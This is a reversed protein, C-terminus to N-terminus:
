EKLPIYNILKNVLYPISQTNSLVKCLLPEIKKSNVEISKLERAILQEHLESSPQARLAAIKFGSDLCAACYRACEIIPKAIETGLRIAVEQILLENPQLRFEVAPMTNFWTSSYGDLQALFNKCTQPSSTNLDLLSASSTVHKKIFQDADYFWGYRQHYFSNKYVGAIAVRPFLEWLCIKHLSKLASDVHLTTIRKDYSLCYVVLPLSVNRLAFVLEKEFGKDSFPRTHVLIDYFTTRGVKWSPMNRWVSTIFLPDFAALLDDHNIYEDGILILTRRGNNLPLPTHADFPIWYGLKALTVDPTPLLSGIANWIIINTKPSCIQYRIDVLSKPIYQLTGDFNALVLAINQSKTKLLDILLSYIANWSVLCGPNIILKKSFKEIGWGRISLEISESKLISKAVPAVPLLEADYMSLIMPSKESEIDQVEVIIKQKEETVRQTEENVSNEFEQYNRFIKITDDNQLMHLANNPIFLLSQDWCIKGIVIEDTNKLDARRAIEDCKTDPWIFAQKTDGNPTILNVIADPGKFFDRTPKNNM